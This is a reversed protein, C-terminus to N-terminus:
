PRRETRHWDDDTSGPAGGAGTPEVEQDLRELNVVIAEQTSRALVV